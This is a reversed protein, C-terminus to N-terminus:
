DKYRQVLHKKAKILWYVAASCKKRMFLVILRKLKSRYNRSARISAKQISEDKVISFIAKRQEKSTMNSSVIMKMAALSFSIFLGSIRKYVEECYGHDDALKIAESYFHKCKEFRDERYVHTLSAQNECYYYLPESLIAVSSVYKYLYMLSYCDESIIQRESVFRWNTKKILPMSFLCICASFVLKKVIVDKSSNEILDPLIRKQIEDGAYRKKEAEPITEVIVKGNKDLTKKGFLVIDVKEEKAVNYCKELTTIDVYDDSDFFCIYDGTAIEIGTNRAMGLGANGKHIVKIRCDKKAWDDCMQPCNDPSGDDVLIIELNSYTQNVVSSVCRNLYKEVNYVPIVVSILNEM